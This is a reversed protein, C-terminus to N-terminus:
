MLNSPFYYDGTRSNEKSSKFTVESGDERKYVIVSDEKISGSKSYVKLVDGLFAEMGEESFLDGEEDIKRVKSESNTPNLSEIPKIENVIGINSLAELGESGSEMALSGSCFSAVMLGAVVLSVRKEKRIM